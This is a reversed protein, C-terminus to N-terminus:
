NAQAQGPVSLVSPNKSSEPIPASTLNAKTLRKVINLELRTVELVLSSRLLKTKMNKQM